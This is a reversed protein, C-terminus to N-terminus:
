RRWAEKLPKVTNPPANALSCLTFVSRALARVTNGLGATGKSWKSWGAMYLSASIQCETELHEVVDPDPCLLEGLSWPEHSLNNEGIWEKTEDHTGM